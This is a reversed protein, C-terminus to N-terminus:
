RALLSLVLFAATSLVFVVGSAVVALRLRQGDSGAAPATALIPAAAVVPAAPLPQGCHQCFKVGARNAGGCRLCPVDAVAAQAVIPSGCTACFALSPPNLSGCATCRRAPTAAMPAALPRGCEVCAERGPENGAGCYECLMEEETEGTM